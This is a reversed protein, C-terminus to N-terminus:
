DWRADFVSAPEVDSLDLTTLQLHESLFENMDASVGEVRSNPLSLSALEALGRILEASARVPDGAELHQLGGVKSSGDMRRTCLGLM